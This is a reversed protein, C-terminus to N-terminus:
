RRIYKTWAMRFLVSVVASSVVFVALPKKWELKPEPERKPCLGCTLVGTCSSVPAFCNTMDISTRIHARDQQFCDCSLISGDSFCSWCSNQFTSEESIKRCNLEGDVVRIDEACRPFAFNRPCSYIPLSTRKTPGGLGSVFCDCILVGREDIECLPCRSLDPSNPRKFEISACKSVHSFKTAANINLSLISFLFFFHLCDSM